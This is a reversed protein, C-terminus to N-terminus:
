SSANQDLRPLHQLPQWFGVQPQRPLWKTRFDDQARVFEKSTKAGHSKHTLYINCTGLTLGAEHASLCFDHDYFHFAFQEDFRVRGAKALDVALFLGDLVICRRFTPGISYMVPPGTTGDHEVWGSLLQQPQRFWPTDQSIPGIRYGSTGAVGTIAYDHKELADNIKERFFVDRISVDDHVFIVIEDSGSKADLILNYCTSLGKENKEFFQFSDIGLRQLSSYLVTEEKLGRTCSVIFLKRTRPRQWTVENPPAAQPDSPTGNTEISM